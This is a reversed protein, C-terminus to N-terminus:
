LSPVNVLCNNAKSLSIRPAGAVGASLDDSELGDFSLTWLFYSLGKQYIPSGMKSETLSIKVVDANNALCSKLILSISALLFPGNLLM